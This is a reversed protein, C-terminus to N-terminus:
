EPSQALTLAARYFEWNREGLGRLLALTDHGVGPVETFTHEINIQQLHASFARNLEVTFDRSGVAQRVRSRGRIAAANREAITLPSQAKFHAVDGGFTDQLIREREAPNAAARPGRFELDLPGGALISVAGFIEPYKLGLRAAGYGGMSFGELIRAERKALTRFTADLHPLLEQVVITEMPVSGDRSDCWMSAALGNPFVVLMPPVKGERMARDFFASLPAIGALGGGTGHLWYLVPFRREPEEDYVAPTYVHYSVKTKAALSEFTRFQVRPATVAPTVWAPPAASTRPPPTAPMSEELFARVDRVVSAVAAEDAGKGWRDDGGGFYFGHGYGAYERYEVNVGAQKMLPVFLPANLKHLDHRDSHLILVPARLTKLKELTRERLAATLYKEPAAMIELRPGYDGTTLMGTYLVTAPEGAVIARVAPDSGLELAISGGGSGGFLAIRGPDVGPVKALAQVAARVDEIPGRSQVDQEYTRFTAQAVAYGGALLRTIVPNVLLQRRLVEEPFQTLGGHIFVVAPFPGDGNPKRWFARIARGDSAKNELTRIPSETEAIEVPKVRSTLPGAGDGEMGATRNRSATTSRQAHAEAEAFTLFGDQDRDAAAFFPLSNGEQRSVKGDGDRDLQRFRAALGVGAPHPPSQEAAPLSAPISALALLAVLPKMTEGEAAM